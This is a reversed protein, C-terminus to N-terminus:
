VKPKSAVDAAAVQQVAVAKAAPTPAAVVATSAEVQAVTSHTTSDKASALGATVIALATSTLVSRWDVAQHNSWATIATIFTPIGLLLTLLGTGISALNTKWNTGLM